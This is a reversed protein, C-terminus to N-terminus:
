AVDTEPRLILFGEGWQATDALSWAITPALAALRLGLAGGTLLRAPGDGSEEIPTWRAPVPGDDSWGTVACWQWSEQRWLRVARIDRGPGTANFTAMCGDPLNPNEPIDVLM